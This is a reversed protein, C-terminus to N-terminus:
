RNGQQLVAFLVAILGAVGVAALLFLGRGALPGGRQKQQKPYQVRRPPKQKTTPPAV